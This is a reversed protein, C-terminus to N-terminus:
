LGEFGLGHGTSKVSCLDVQAECLQESCWLPVTEVGDSSRMSSAAVSHIM